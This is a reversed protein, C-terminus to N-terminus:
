DDRRFLGDNIQSLDITAELCHVHKLAKLNDPLNRQTDEDLLSPFFGIVEPVNPLLNFIKSGCNTCFCRTPNNPGKSFHKILEMGSTVSFDDKSVYVVKM